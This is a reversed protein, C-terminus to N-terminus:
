PAWRHRNTVRLREEKPLKYEIDASHVMGDAGKHVKAVGAYM